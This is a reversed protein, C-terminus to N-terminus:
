IDRFLPWIRAAPTAPYSGRHTFRLGWGRYLWIWGVVGSIGGM